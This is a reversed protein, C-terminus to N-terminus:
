CRNLARSPRERRQQFLRVYPRRFYVKKNGDRRNGRRRRRRRRNKKHLHEAKMRIKCGINVPTLSNLFFYLFFLITLHFRILICIILLWINGIFTCYSRGFESLKDYLSLHFHCDKSMLTKLMLKHYGPKLFELKHDRREAM